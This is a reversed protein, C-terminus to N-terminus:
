KIISNIVDNAVIYGGSWCNQLNFGGCFGDINVVEGIFWLNNKLKSKYNNDLEDLDVGGANVTEQSNSNSIVTLNLVSIKKIQEKSVESCKKDFDKVIVRALSKPVFLSIINGISKKPFILIQKFIEDVDFLSINIDYPFTKFANISSIKYAFPGSIGDETFIFDGDNSKVSVGKPYTNNKIKLACLSKKFPIINHGTSKILSPNGRSGCAIIKIDYDSIEDFSKIEKNIIEFNDFTKLYSIFKDRVFKSSNKSPFIRGDDQIYTDIGLFKFFELTDVNFYRSFVSYLFKEGRPYNKAFEKVDYVSNTINCRGGGTPLITRLIQAKDFITLTFGSFGREKAIKLFNLTFYAGAPGFGVLALKIKKNKERSLREM